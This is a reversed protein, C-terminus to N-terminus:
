RDDGNGHLQNRIKRSALKELNSIAIRGMPIGIESSVAALYWLVDGLEKAIAEKDEFSPEGNKDRMIKKIKEAVEGAEGCLGLTPYYLNSGIDPYVATTKAKKAYHHFSIFEEVSQREEENSEITAVLAVMENLIKASIPSHVTARLDKTLELLRNLNEM